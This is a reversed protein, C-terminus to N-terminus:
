CSGRHRRAPCSQIASRSSVFAGTLRQRSSARAARRWRKPRKPHRSSIRTWGRRCCSTPKSKTTRSRSGSPSFQRRRSRSATCWRRERRDVPGGDVGACRRRHADRSQEQLGAGDYAIAARLLCLRCARRRRPRNRANAVGHPDCDAGVRVFQLQISAHIAGYETKSGNVPVDDFPRVGPLIMVQVAARSVQPAPAKRADM